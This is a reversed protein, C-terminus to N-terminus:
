GFYYGNVNKCKPAQCSIIYNVESVVNGNKDYYHGNYYTCTYKTPQPKSNCQKEYTYKTVVKGSSGFYYGNVNKCKPAQCSIIYKSESVVNGNKDYFKGDVNQCTYNTTEPNYSPTPTPIEIYEKKIVVVSNDKSGKVPINENKNTTSKKECLNNKCYSYCGLHVLIYDEKESDKLNIKLLYEDNLKTIKVYSKEVDCAKNNKDVLPVLLKKGIMDSLTMTDSSDVEQPLREDTYYSIAADKMRKINDAYIQSTLADLGKVNCSVAGSVNKTNSSNSEKNNSHKINPGLLKPLFLVLLLVIIFIILIKFILNLIPFGKQEYDENYM